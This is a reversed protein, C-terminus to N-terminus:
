ELYPELRGNNEGKTPTLLPYMENVKLIRKRRGMENGTGRQGKRQCGTPPVGKRPAKFTTLDAAKRLSNRKRGSGVM